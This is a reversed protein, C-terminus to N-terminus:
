RDPASPASRLFPVSQPVAEIASALTFEDGEERLRALFLGYAITQAFTDAFGEDDLDSVLTERYFSLAGRLTGGKRSPKCRGGGIGDRLLRARRALEVALRRPSRIIPPAYSLFNIFAAQIEDASNPPLLTAGGPDALQLQELAEGDRIFVLPLLRDTGLEAAVRSVATGPGVVETM